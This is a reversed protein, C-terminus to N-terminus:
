KKEFKEARDKFYRRLQELFDGNPDYYRDFFEQGLYNSLFDQADLASGPATILQSIEVFLGVHEGYPGIVLFHRMDIVQNPNSPDIVYRYEEAPGGASIKKSVGLPGREETQIQELTKGKAYEVFEEWKVAENKHQAREEPDDFIKEWFLGRRDVYNVPNNRCYVYKHFNPPNFRKSLYPDKTIFRGTTPEYWRAGFYFLKSEPDYQKGTFPNYNYKGIYGQKVEGFADYDYSTLVNGKKNTINVISGLGDHHFYITFLGNKVLDKSVLQGKAYIYEALPKGTKFDYEMLENQGDWLYITIDRGVRRVLRRGF